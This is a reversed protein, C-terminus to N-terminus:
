KSHTYTFKSNDPKIKSLVQEVVELFNGTCSAYQALITTGRAVVAYLLAM